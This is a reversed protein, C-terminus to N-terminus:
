KKILDDYFDDDLTEEESEGKVEKYMFYTGILAGGIIGIVLVSILLNVLYLLLALINLGFLILLFLSMFVSSM